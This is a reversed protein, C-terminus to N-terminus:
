YRGNGYGIQERLLKYRDVQGNPGYRWGGDCEDWGKTQVDCTPVRRAFEELQDVPVYNYMVVRLRELSTMEYLPTLDTLKPLKSINLHKLEKCNVLPSIDSVNSTFIELYELKPCNALPSVDDLRTLALIAVELNPMYALFDCKTIMHDHGFDVYKTETCYKLVDSNEDSVEITWIVETDTLFGRRRMALESHYAPEGLWVRWVVKPTPFDERLQAMVENDVECGDMLFYQCASLYPLVARITEVGENGIPVRFYEIREDESTVTQGFLEFSVKLKVEPLAGRFAALVDLNELDFVCIGDRSVFDIEQLEALMPLRELIEPAQEPTMSSLDLKEVHADVTRGLIKVTFDVQADPFAGRIQAVETASLDTMGLQIRSIGDFKRAAMVLRNVDYTMETLNLETSDVPVLTGGIDIPAPETPLQIEPEAPAGCAALVLALLLLLLLLNKKMMSEGKETCDKLAGM